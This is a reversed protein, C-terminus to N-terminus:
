AEIDIATFDVYWSQAPKFGKVKHALARPNLDHVIWIWMAQDVVYEHLRAVAEDREKPDFKLKTAAGLEDAKPDNYLAWNNGNPPARNSMIVSLFGFDPDAIGWSYNLAYVGKNQDGDARNGRRARLTEWDVVEIKIDFGVANLNEQVFESMPLPQMQGSGSQSTLFTAKCPKDPGYGAEAMLKKAAEPDYKIDFSPKGFWPSSVDVMGKAAKALGGLFEVMGDRDIALNAAQRVRIDTFPSDETFSLWCPWIHPYVSTYIDIGSQKLHPVADPPPAEVWDVQGALLAAVRTTADPMTYLVMRDVKPISNPDWYNPNKVLDARERPTFSELIFPGTGSPKLAFKQWDGGVEQWRAPSSFAINAIRYFVMSNPAATTLQITYDDVKGYGTVGVFYSGALTAQIQDFQPADKKRLKDFNWIAADANFDSGDHFKVGKRLNFTWTTGAEDVSYSEALSPVLEAPRDTVSLDWRFLMDYLNRGIFRIGEGGQTAQGTTLPIDSLTMAVRLIKEGDAAFAPHVAPLLAAAASAKLFTRRDM